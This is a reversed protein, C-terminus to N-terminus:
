KKENELLELEKFRAAAKKQDSFVEASARDTYLFKGKVFPIKLKYWEKVGTESIEVHVEDVAAVAVCYPHEEEVMEGCHPCESATTVYEIYWVNDGVNFKTKIGM